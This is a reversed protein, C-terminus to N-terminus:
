QCLYGASFFTNLQARFNSSVYSLPCVPVGDLLVQFAVQNASYSFGIISGIVQGALVSDGSRVIPTIGVFRTALRGSHAITVAYGSIGNFSGTGTSTVIGKAASLYSGGTWAGNNQFVWYPTASTYFGSTTTFSAGSFIPELSPISSDNFLSLPDVSGTASGCANVGVVMLVLGLVRFIRNMSKIMKKM